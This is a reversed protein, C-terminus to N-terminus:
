LAASVNLISVKGVPICLKCIASGDHDFTTSYCRPAHLSRHHRGLERRARAFPSPNRSAAFRKLIASPTVARTQISATM